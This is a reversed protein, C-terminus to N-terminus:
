QAARRTIEVKTKQRKQPPNEFPHTDGCKAIRTSEHAATVADSTVPPLEVAWFGNAVCDRIRRSFLLLELCFSVCCLMAALTRTGFHHRDIIIINISWRNIYQLEQLVSMAKGAIPAAQEARAMAYLTLRLGCVTSCQVTHAHVTVRIAKM